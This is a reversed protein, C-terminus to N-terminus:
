SCGRPDTAFAMKPDCMRIQGGTGIVVVYRRAEGSATSTVDARTFLAGAPPTYVRGMADFNVEAPLEGVDSIQASFYGAPAPVPLPTASVTVKALTGSEEAPRTQITAPCTATVTPCGVTWSVQGDKDTLMFRVITNRRVAEARATQLGNLISEAATRVQTDRIWGSFAPIGMALMGALIAIGIMLEILTVGQQRRALM